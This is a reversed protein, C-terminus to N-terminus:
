DLSGGALSGVVAGVFDWVLDKGSWYTGKVNEDRWEKACGLSITLFIAGARADSESSGGGELGAVVGAGVASAVAFHQWKDQGFWEDGPRNLSACGCVLLVCAVFPCLWKM